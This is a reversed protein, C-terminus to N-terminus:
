FWRHYSYERWMGATSMSIVVAPASSGGVVVALRYFQARSPLREM